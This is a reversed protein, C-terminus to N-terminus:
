DDQQMFTHHSHHTHTHSLSFFWVLIQTPNFQTVFKALTSARSCLECVEWIMNSTTIPCSYQRVLNRTQRYYSTPSVILASILSVDVIDHLYM